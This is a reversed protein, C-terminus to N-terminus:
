EYRLAEVPNKSVVKWSQWSVTLLAAMGVMLGAFAFIWWTINAKNGFGKLLQIIVYWAIPCAIIYAVLVSRMFSKNLLRIIEFSRAGNVKRIGIEKIRSQTAQYTLAVLGLIALLISVISAFRFTSNLQKIGNIYDEVESSTFSYEFPLGQSFSKITKEIKAITLDIDGPLISVFLYKTFHQNDPHASLIMPKVENFLYDNQFDKVVGIVM